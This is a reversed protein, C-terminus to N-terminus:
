PKFYFKIFEVNLFAVMWLRNHIAQTELVFLYVLFLFNCNKQGISIDFSRSTFKVTIVVCEVNNLVGAEWPDSKFM